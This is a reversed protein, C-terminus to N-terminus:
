LERGKHGGQKEKRLLRAILWALKLKKGLVRAKIEVEFM